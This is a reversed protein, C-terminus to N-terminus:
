LCELIAHVVMHLQFTRSEADDAKFNIDELASGESKETIATVFLSPFTMNWAGAQAQHVDLKLHM